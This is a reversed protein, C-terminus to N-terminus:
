HSAIPVELYEHLIDVIAGSCEDGTSRSDQDIGALRDVWNRERPQQEWVSFLTLEDSSRRDEAAAKIAIGILFFASDSTGSNPLLSLYRFPSASPVAQARYIIHSVRNFPITRESQWFWFWRTAVLVQQSRRNITVCRSYLFLVLLQAVWPTCGHVRDSGVEINPAIRLLAM